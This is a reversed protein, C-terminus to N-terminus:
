KCRLLRLPFHSPLPLHRYLTFALYKEVFGERPCTEPSRTSNQQPMPSARSTVVQCSLPSTAETARHVPCRLDSRHTSLMISDLALLSLCVSTVVLEGGGKLALAANSKYSCCSLFRVAHMTAPPKAAEHSM